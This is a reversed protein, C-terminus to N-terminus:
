RRSRRPNAVGPHGVLARAQATATSPTPRPATTRARAAEARSTTAPRTTLYPLNREPLDRLTRRVPAPSSLVETAATILYRPTASTFDAHWRPGRAAEVCGYMTWEAPVGGELEAHFDADNQRLSLYAHGDPAHQYQFLENYEDRWGRAILVDGPSVPTYHRGGPLFDRHNSELGRLLITTFAAVIEAPTDRSFAAIWTPIGLPERSWSIKWGGYRSGPLDAIHGRLCPSSFVRGAATHSEAWGPAARLPDTILAANGPGALYVPGVLLEDDRAHPKDPATPM